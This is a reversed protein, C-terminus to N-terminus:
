WTSTSLYIPFYFFSPSGHVLHVVVQLGDRGLFVLDIDIDGGFSKCPQCPLSHEAVLADTFEAVIGNCRRSAFLGAYAYGKCRIGVLVIQLKRHGIPSTAHLKRGKGIRQLQSACGKGSVAQVFM